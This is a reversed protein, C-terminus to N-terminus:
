AFLDDVSIAVSPVLTATVTGGRRLLEVQQYEGDLLDTHRVVVEAQLDVLWVEPIGARAYLPVKVERDYRLTTDSVEIVLLVDEFTPTQHRYSRERLLMVDPQVMTRDDIRLPNQVRVRITNPVQRGLDRSAVDVTEAHPDGIPSMEVIDGEILEVRGDEPLIGTEIMRHLDDITFQHREIQLAM